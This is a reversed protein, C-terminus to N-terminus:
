TSELKIKHNYLLRRLLKTAKIPSLVLVVSANELRRLDYIKSSKERCKTLCLIGDCFGHAVQWPETASASTAMDIQSVYNRRAVGTLSACKLTVFRLKEEGYNLTYMARIGYIYCIRSVDSSLKRQCRFFSAPSFWIQALHHAQANEQLLRTVIM